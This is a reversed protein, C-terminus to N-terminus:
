SFSSTVQPIHFRPRTPHKKLDRKNSLARPEAFLSVRLSRILLNPWRALRCHPVARCYRGLSDVLDWPRGEPRDQQSFGSDWDPSDVEAVGVATADHKPARYPLTTWLVRGSAVLNRPLLM